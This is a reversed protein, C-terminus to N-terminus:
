RETDNHIQTDFDLVNETLKDGHSDVGDTMHSKAPIRIDEDPQRSKCWTECTTGNRALYTGYSVIINCLM